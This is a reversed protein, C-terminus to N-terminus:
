FKEKFFQKYLWVPSKVKPHSPTRAESWPTELRQNVGEAKVSEKLMKQNVGEANKQNVGEGNGCIFM